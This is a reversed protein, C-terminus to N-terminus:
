GGRRMGSQGPAAGPSTECGTRPERQPQPRDPAPEGCRVALDALECVGDGAGRGPPWRGPARTAGTEAVAAPFVPRGGAAFIGRLVRALLRRALEDYDLDVGGTAGPPAAAGDRDERPPAPFAADGVEAVAARHSMMRIRAGAARKRPGATQQGM